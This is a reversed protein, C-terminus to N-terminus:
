KMEKKTKEWDKKLNNKDTICNMTDYTSCAMKYYSKAQEKKGQYTSVLCYLRYYEAENRRDLNSKKHLLEKVDKLWNEAEQLFRKEQNRKFIELEIAALMLEYDIIGRTFKKDQAMKWAEKIDQYLINFDTRIEMKCKNMWLVHVLHRYENIVDSYLAENKEWTTYADEYRDECNFLYLAYVHYYLAIIRKDLKKEEEVIQSAKKLYKSAEIRNKQKSMANIYDCLGELEENKDKIEKAAKVRKLRSSKEGIIWYGRVITYYKLNRDIRIYEKYMQNDYLKAEVEVIIKYEDLEDLIDMKEIANYCEGIGESVTIYYSAIDRYFANRDFDSNRTMKNLILTRIMNNLSCRPNNLIIHDLLGSKYCEDLAEKWRDEEISIHCLYAILKLSVTHSFNACIMMIQKALKGLQAWKEDIIKTSLIEYGSDKYNRYKQLIQELEIGYKNEQIIKKAIYKGAFPIGGTLEYITDIVDQRYDDLVKLKNTTRIMCRFEEESMGQNMSYIKCPIQIKEEQQEYPVSSLLIVKTIGELKELFDIIEQELNEDISDVVLLTPHEKLARICIEMRVENQVENDKAKPEILELITNVINTVNEKTSDLKNWVIYEFANTSNCLDYTYAMVSKTKGSLKYGEVYAFSSPGKIFEDLFNGLVQMRIISTLDQPELNNKTNIHQTDRLIVASCAITYEKAFIELYKEEISLKQAYRLIGDIFGTIDKPIAGTLFKRISVESYYTFEALRSYIFIKKDSEGEIKNNKIAIQIKTVLDNLLNKRRKRLIEEKDEIM